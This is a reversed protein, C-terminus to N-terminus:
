AYSGNGGMDMGKLALPRHQLKGEQDRAPSDRDEADMESAAKLSTALIDAPSLKLMQLRKDRLM